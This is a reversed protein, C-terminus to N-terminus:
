GASLAFSHPHVFAMQGNVAFREQVPDRGNQELKERFDEQDQSFLINRSLVLSYPDHRIKYRVTSRYPSQIGTQVMGAIGTYENYGTIHREDILGDNLKKKLLDICRINDHRLQDGPKLRQM